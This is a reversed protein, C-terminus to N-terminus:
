DQDAVSDSGYRSLLARVGKVPDFAAIGVGINLLDSQNRLQNINYVSGKSAVTVAVGETLGSVWLRGIVSLSTDDSTISSLLCLNCLHDLHVM